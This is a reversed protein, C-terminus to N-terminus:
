DRRSRLVAIKTAVSSGTIVAHGGVHAPRAKLKVTAVRGAYPRHWVVGAGGLNQVYQACAANLDVADSPNIRGDAAYFTDSMPVLFTRGRVRRGDLVTGTLWTLCAGSPASYPGSAGGHLQPPQAISWSGSIVGTTDEITDGFGEVQAAVVTPMKTIVATWLSQVFGIVSPANIAYFTCVGPAGNFGTLSVRIRDIGAM